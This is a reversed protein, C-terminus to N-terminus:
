IDDSNNIINNQNLVINKDGLYEYKILSVKINERKKEDNTIYSEIDCDEDKNENNFPINNIMVPEINNVIEDDIVDNSM